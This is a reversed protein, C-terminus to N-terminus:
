AKRRRRAMLGLSSIGLSGILAYAGPEPVQPNPIHPRVEYTYSVWASAGAQTDIQSTIRGSGTVSSLSEASLTLGAINGMGVFHSFLANSILYSAGGNAQVGLFSTGSNGAFDTSGDYKAAIFNVSASLLSSISGLDPQDLTLVASATGNLSAAKASRNEMRIDSVITGSFGLDIGTLNGLLPDFKPLNLLVGSFDTDMLPVSTTHTISAAEVASSAVTLALVAGTLCIRFSLNTVM